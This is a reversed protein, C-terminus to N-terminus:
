IKRWQNCVVLQLTEEGDIGVDQPPFSNCHPGIFSLTVGGKGGVPAIIREATCRTLAGDIDCLRKEHVPLRKVHPLPIQEYYTSASVRVLLTRQTREQHGPSLM